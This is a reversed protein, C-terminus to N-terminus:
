IWIHASSTIHHHTPTVHGPDGARVDRHLQVRSCVLCHPGPNDVIYPTIILINEPNFIKSIHSIQGADTPQPSPSKSRHTPGPENNDRQDIIRFQGEWTVHAWMVASTEQWGGCGRTVWWGWWWSLHRSPPATITEWLPILTRAEMRDCDLGCGGYLNESLNKGGM